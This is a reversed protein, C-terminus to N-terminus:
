GTLVDPSLFRDLAARLEAATTANVDLRARTSGDLHLVVIEIMPFGVDLAYQSLRFMPKPTQGRQTYAVVIVQSRHFGGITRAQCRSPHCWVPHGALQQADPASV